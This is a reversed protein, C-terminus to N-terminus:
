SYGCCHRHRLERWAATVVGAVTVFEELLCDGSSTDDDDRGSGSTFVDGPALLLMGEGTYGEAEASFTEGELGGAAVRGVMLLGTSCVVVGLPVLRIPCLPLASLCSCFGSGSASQCMLRLESTPLM